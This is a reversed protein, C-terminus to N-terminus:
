ALCKFWCNLLSPRKIDKNTGKYWALQKFFTKFTLHTAFLKVNKQESHRDADSRKKGSNVAETLGM